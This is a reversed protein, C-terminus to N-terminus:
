EDKDKNNDKKDKKNNNEKKQKKREERRKKIEEEIIKKEELLKKIQEDDNDDDEEEEEETEENDDEEEEGEEEGSENDLNDLNKEEERELKAVKESIDNFGNTINMNSIKNLYKEDKEIEKKRKNFEEELKKLELNIEEDNNFCFNFIWKFFYYFILIFFVIASIFKKKNFYINIGNKMLFQNFLNIVNELKEAYISYLTFFYIPKNPLNKLGNKVESFITFIFDELNEKTINLKMEYITNNELLIIYPLKKINFRIKTIINKNIDIQAIRLESIEHFSNFINNIEQKAKTCNINLNSYFLILWRYKKGEETIKDFSSDNLEYIKNEVFFTKNDNDKTVKVKFLSAFIFLFIYIM